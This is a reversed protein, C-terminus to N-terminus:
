GSFSLIRPSSLCIRVSFGVMLQYNHKVLSLLVQIEMSKPRTELELIFPPLTPRGKRGGVYTSSEDSISKQSTTQNSIPKSRTDTGGFSFYSHVGDTKPNQPIPQGVFSITTTPAHANTKPSQEITPEYGNALKWRNTQSVAKVIMKSRKSGSKWHTLSPSLKEVKGM